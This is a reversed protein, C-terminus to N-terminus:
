SINNNNDPEVIGGSTELRRGSMLHNPTIMEDNGNEDDIGIPRNNLIQEVEACLTQLEVYNVTNTGIMKKLCRKVCEVMREWLGGQWPAGDLTFISEVLRSAM